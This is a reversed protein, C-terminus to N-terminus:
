ACHDLIIQTADKLDKSVYDPPVDWKRLDKLRTRGSLVLITKCGANKGAEIDVKDDGVFYAHEAWRMTKNISSLGKKISGTNPKRCRCGATSLHTCYYAKKIKGGAERVKQMMTQHIKNLKYRSYLGKAVGAQNSVVFITYGAKSLAAISEVSGPILAFDKVKTVYNGNGPFVNIVGDRDLFVVKM